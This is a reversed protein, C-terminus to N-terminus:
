HRSGRVQLLAQYADPVHPGTRGELTYPRSTEVLVRKVTAPDLTSDAALLMAVMGATVLSTSSISLFPRQSYDHTEGHQWRLLKAVFVKSYDYQLINVDPDRGDDGTRPGVWGPELNEPLPYHIFTTVIGARHARRVADDLAPRNAPSFARDSYTLVQIHHAIAWDIAKVMAAVKEAEDRTSTNLAYIEVDPAVERLVVAMRYGHESIGHLSVAGGAVFDAGGAYLDPHDDTGFFHDLIGVRVGAGRSLRQAAHLNHVTFYTEHSNADPLVLVRPEQAVAASRPLIAGCVALAVALALTRNRM